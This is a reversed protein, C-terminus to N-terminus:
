ARGRDTCQAESHFEVSSAACRRSGPATSKGTPAGTNKCGGPGSAVSASFDHLQRIFIEEAGRTIASASTKSLHLTNPEPAQDSFRQAVAHHALWLLAALSQAHYWRRKASGSHM